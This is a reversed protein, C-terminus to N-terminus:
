YTLLDSFLDNVRYRSILKEQPILNYVSHHELFSLLQIGHSTAPTHCSFPILLFVSLPLHGDSKPSSSTIYM